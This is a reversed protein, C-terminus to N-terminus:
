PGRGRPGSRWPSTHPGRPSTTAELRLGPNAWPGGPRRGRPRVLWGPAQTRARRPPPPQPAPLVNRVSQEQSAWPASPPPRRRPRRPGGQAVQGTLLPRPSRPCLRPGPGHHAWGHLCKPPSRSCLRSTHAPCNSGQRGLTGPQTGAGVRVGVRACIPALGARRSTQAWGASSAVARTSTALSPANQSLGPRWGPTGMPRRSSCFVCQPLPRTM